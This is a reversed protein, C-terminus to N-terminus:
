NFRRSRTTTPPPGGAIRDVTIEAGTVMVIAHRGPQIGMDMLLVTLWEQLKAARAQSVYDILVRTPTRELVEHNSYDPFEKAMVTEISLAEEASFNRLTVNYTTVMGSGSGAGGAIAGGSGPAPSLYALKQALVNGIDAAIQSANAGVTESICLQNCDYPATYTKQPLEFSGIFQNTNLDYMEGAVRTRLRTMAQTQEGQAHIRFLTMVRSRLNASASTNALKATEILDTKSRRTIIRWGGEVALMEEDVMRFGERGMQDKLSALVRKFIDSDRVVTNPDSDEGMVLVRLNTGSQALAPTAAEALAAAAIAALITRKLM